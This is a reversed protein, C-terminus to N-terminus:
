SLMKKKSKTKEREKKKRREQNGEERQEQKNLDTTIYMDITFPRAAAPNNPCHLGERVPFRVSRYAFM